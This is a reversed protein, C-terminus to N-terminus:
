CCLRALTRSHAEKTAVHTAHYATCTPGTGSPGVGLVEAGLSTWRFRAAVSCEFVSKCLKSEEKITM